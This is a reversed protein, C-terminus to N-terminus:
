FQFIKETLSLGYGLSLFLISDLLSGIHFKKYVLLIIIISFVVCMSIKDFVNLSERLLWFSNFYRNIVKMFSEVM